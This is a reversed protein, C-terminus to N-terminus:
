KSICVGESKLLKKKQAVGWRYGGIGGDKRIVRHCPVLVPITNAGIANAVARVARPNGISRAIDEYTRVQGKPIRILARWVKQQFPTGHSLNLHSKSPSM